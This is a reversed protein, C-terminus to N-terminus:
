QKITSDLKARLKQSERSVAALVEAVAKYLQAPIIEDLPFQYLAQALAPDEYIPVNNKIAIDKIRLATYDVGKAVITPAVMYADYKLAVAYHTPNTIVVDSEPVQQMMKKMAIQRGMERIRRKIMPDGEQSKYEDKVEQKSMKLSKDFEFWQYVYDIIALILLILSLVIGIRIALRVAYEFSALPPTLALKQLSYMETHMMSYAVWGVLIVKLLNKVLEFVGRMSIIRQFGKAPNLKTFDPNLPHTSTMFGVQAFNVILAIVGTLVMFPLMIIGVKIILMTNLGSIYNINIPMMYSNKLFHSALEM